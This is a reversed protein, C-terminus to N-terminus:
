GAATASVQRDDETSCITVPDGPTSGCTWDGLAVPGSAAEPSVKTFYDTFVRVAQACDAKGSAVVKAAKGSPTRVEGCATGPLAPGVAAAQRAPAAPPASPAGAGCGALLGAAASLIALLM